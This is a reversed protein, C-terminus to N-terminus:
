AKPIRGARSDTVEPTVSMVEVRARRPSTVRQQMASAKMAAIDAPTAQVVVVSGVGVGVGDGDGEGEGSGPLM